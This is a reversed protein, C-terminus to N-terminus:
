EYKVGRVHHIVELASLVDIKEGTYPSTWGERLCAPPGAKFNDRIKEFTERGSYSKLCELPDDYGIEKVQAKFVEVAAWFPEEQWKDDYQGKFPYHLTALYIDHFLDEKTRLVNEASM